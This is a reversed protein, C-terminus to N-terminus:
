ISKYTFDLFEEQNKFSDWDAKSLNYPPDIVALDISNDPVIKFYEFVDLNFIKNVKFTSM